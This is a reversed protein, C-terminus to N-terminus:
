RKGRSITLISAEYLIWVPLSVALLTFIDTTPTIIAAVVLIIVVAHRRYHHMFERNIWGMRGFIWVLVPMEFFLGMALVLTLLTSIYSSLTILNDIDTDVQYTGLFRFTLPFILLYGTGAGLIFMVYSGAIARIAMRRESRYLAPSLFRFLQYLIYPSAGLIGICFAARIHILFQSALQTNILTIQMPEMGMGALGSLRDLLRYTVFDNQTPALLISFMEEKAMFAVLAVAMTAALSKLIVSRLDDLHDWFTMTSSDATEPKM